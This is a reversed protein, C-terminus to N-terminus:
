KIVLWTLINKLLTSNDYRFHTVYGCHQLCVIRTKGRESAALIVPNKVGDSDETDDSGWILSIAPPTVMLSGPASQPSVIVNVGDTVPHEQMFPRRFSIPADEFHM